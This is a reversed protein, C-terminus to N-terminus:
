QHPSRRTRRSAAGRDAARSGVGPEDSGRRGDFDHAFYIGVRVRLECAADNLVAAICQVPDPRQIDVDALRHRDQSAAAAAGRVHGVVQQSALAEHTLPSSRTRERGRRSTRSSPATTPASISVPAPSRPSGRARREEGRAAESPVAIQPGLVEAGGCTIQRQSGVGVAHSVAQPQPKGGAGRQALRIGPEVAVQDGGLDWLRVRVLAGVQGEVVALM